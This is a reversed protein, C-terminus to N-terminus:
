AICRLSHALQLTWMRYQPIPISPHDSLPPYEARAFSFTKLWALMRSKTRARPDMEIRALDLLDERVGAPIKQQAAWNKLSKGIYDDM